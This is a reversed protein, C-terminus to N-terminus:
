SHPFYMSVGSIVKITFDLFHSSNRFVEQFDEVCSRATDSNVKFLGALHTTSGFQVPESRRDLLDEIKMLPEGKGHDLSWSSLWFVESDGLTENIM